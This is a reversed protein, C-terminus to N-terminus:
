HDFERLQLVFRGFTDAVRFFHGASDNPDCYVVAEALDRIAELCFIGGGSDCAIPLLLQSPFRERTLALNWFIDNTEGSSGIGFFVQVDTPSSPLGPVDVTNPSPTGGNYRRLFDGYDSPLSAGFEVELEPIADPELNPGCNEIAVM